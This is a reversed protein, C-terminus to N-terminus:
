EPQEDTNEEEPEEETCKIAEIITTVLGIIAIIVTTRPTLM